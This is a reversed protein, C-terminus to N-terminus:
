FPTGVTQNEFYWTNYGYTKKLFVKFDPINANYFRHSNNYTPNYVNDNWVVFVHAWSGDSAPVMTGNELRCVWCIQINSAGKSVLYTKFALARDDCDGGQKLFTDPDQIGPTDFFPM